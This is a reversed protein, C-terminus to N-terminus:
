RRPDVQGAVLSLAAGSTPARTSGSSASEILIKFLRYSDDVEFAWGAAL